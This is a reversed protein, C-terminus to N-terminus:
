RRTWRRASSTLTHLSGLGVVVTAARRCRTAWGCTSPVAPVRRPHQMSVHLVRLRHRRRCWTSTAARPARPPSSSSSREMGRAADKPAPVLAAPPPPLPEREPDCWRVAAASTASGPCRYMSAMAALPSASSRAMSSAAAHRARGGTAHSRAPARHSSSAVTEAQERTAERRVASVVAPGAEVGDEATSAGGGRNTFVLPM